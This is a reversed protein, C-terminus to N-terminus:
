EEASEPTCSIDSSERGDRTASCFYRRGNCTATWTRGNWGGEDNAIQIQSPSCGVKGSSVAALNTTACAASALAVLMAAVVAFRFMFATSRMTLLWDAFFPFRRRVFPRM